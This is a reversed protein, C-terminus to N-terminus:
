GVITPICTFVGADAHASQPTLNHIIPFVQLPSFYCTPHKMKKKVMLTEFANKFSTRIANIIADGIAHHAALLHNCSKAYRIFM